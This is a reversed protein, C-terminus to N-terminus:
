LGRVAVIPVTCEGSQGKIGAGERAGEAREEQDGREQNEELIEVVEKAM